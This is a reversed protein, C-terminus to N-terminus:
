IDSELAAPDVLEVRGNPFRRRLLLPLVNAELEMEAIRIASTPIATPPLNLTTGAGHAIQEARISLLRTREYLSLFKRVTQHAVDQRITVDQESMATTKSETHYKNICSHILHTNIM